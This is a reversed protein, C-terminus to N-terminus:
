GGAQLGQGVPQFRLRLGLPGPNRLKILITTSRTEKEFGTAPEYDPIDRGLTGFLRVRIKM